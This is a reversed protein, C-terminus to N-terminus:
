KFLNREVFGPYPRVAGAHLAFNDPRADDNRSGFTAQRYRAVMAFIIAVKPNWRAETCLWEIM